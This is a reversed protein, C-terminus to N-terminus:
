GAPTRTATRASSAPSVLRVLPERARAAFASALAGVLSLAFTEATCTGEKEDGPLTVTAWHGAPGLSATYYAGGTLETAASDFAETALLAQIRSPSVLVVGKLLAPQPAVLLLQWMTRLRKRSDSGCSGACDLALRSMEEAWESRAQEPV